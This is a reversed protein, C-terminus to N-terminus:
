RPITHALGKFFNDARKEYACYLFLRTELSFQNKINSDKYEKLLRTGEDFQVKIWTQVADPSSSYFRSLEKDLSDIFHDKVVFRYLPPLEYFSDKLAKIRDIHSCCQRHFEEIHAIDDKWEEFTINM